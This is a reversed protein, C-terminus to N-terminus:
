KRNIELVWKDSKNREEIRSRLSTVTLLLLLVTGRCGLGRTTSAMLLALAPFGPLTMAALLRFLPSTRTVASVGEVM